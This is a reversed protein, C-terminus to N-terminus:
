LVAFFSIRNKLKVDQPSLRISTQLSNQKLYCATILGINLCILNLELTKHLIIELLLATVALSYHVAPELHHVTFLNTKFM